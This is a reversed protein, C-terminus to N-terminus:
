GEMDLIYGLTESETNDQKKWSIDITGCEPCQWVEVTVNRHVEKLEYHCPDVELGCGGFSMTVGDPFKCKHYMKSM